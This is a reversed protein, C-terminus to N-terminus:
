RETQPRGHGIIRYEKWVEGEYRSGWAAGIAAGTAAGGLAGIAAGTLLEERGLALMVGPGALAGVAGVIFGLGRARRVMVYSRDHGRYKALYRIEPPAVLYTRSNATDAIHVGEHTFATVVGEIRGDFVRPAEVRLLGGPAFVHDQAAAPLATLVLALVLLSASRRM